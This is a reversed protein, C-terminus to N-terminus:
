IHQMTPCACAAACGCRRPQHKDSIVLAADQMHRLAQGVSQPSEGSGILDAIQEATLGKEGQLATLILERLESM